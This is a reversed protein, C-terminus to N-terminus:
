NTFKDVMLTGILTLRSNPNKDFKVSVKIIKYNIKQNSGPCLPKDKYEIIEVSREFPAVLKPLDKYKPNENVGGTEVGNFSSDVDAYPLAKLYDIVDKAYNASIVKNVIDTTGRHQETLSYLLNVAIIGLIAITALIEIMTFGRTNNRPM